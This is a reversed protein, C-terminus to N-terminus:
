FSGGLSSFSSRRLLGPMRGTPVRQTSVLLPLFAMSARRTTCPQWPPLECILASAGAPDVPVSYRARAAAAWFSQSM